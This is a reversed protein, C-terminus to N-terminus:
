EGKVVETWFSDGELRQYKLGNIKKTEKKREM